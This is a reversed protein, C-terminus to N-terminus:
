VIASMRLLRALFGGRGYRAGVNRLERQLRALTVATTNRALRKYVCMCTSFIGRPVGTGTKSCSPSPTRKRGVVTGIRSALDRDATGQRGGSRKAQGRRKSGTLTKIDLRACIAERSVVKDKFFSYILFFM